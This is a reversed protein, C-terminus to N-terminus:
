DKLLYRAMVEGHCVPTTNFEKKPTKHCFCRLFLNNGLNRLQKIQEASPVYGEIKYTMNGFEGKGKWTAPTNFPKGGVIARGIYVDTYNKISPSSVHGVIINM